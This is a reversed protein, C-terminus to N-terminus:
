PAKWIVHKNKDFLILSAASTKHTEGTSPTVLDQKGLGAEFGAEDTVGVNGPTLSVSASSKENPDSVWFAGGAENAFWTSVRRGQEDNIGVTGGFLGAISGDLELNTTGKADLFVMKPTGSSFSENEVSLRARTNGHSDRLVFENAEVTKKSPAQGLLLLLAPFILAAVGLRKFRLNQQELKVVRERLDELGASKPIM